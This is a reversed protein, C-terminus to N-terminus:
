TFFFFFSLFIYTQLQRCFSPLFFQIQLRVFFLLATNPTEILCVDSSFFFVKSHFFSSFFVSNKAISILSTVFSKFSSFILQFLSLFVFRIRVSLYYKSFFFCVCMCVFYKRTENMRVSLRRKIFKM